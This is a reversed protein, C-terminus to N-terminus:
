IQLAVSFNHVLDDYELPKNYILWDLEAPQSITDALDIGCMRHRYQIRLLSTTEHHQRAKYNRRIHVIYM